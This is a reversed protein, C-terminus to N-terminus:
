GLNHGPTDKSLQELIEQWHDFLMLHGEDPFFTAQCGPIAKALYRGMFISVDKDAEGHWVYVPIRIDMLSFGWDRVLLAAEWAHGTTGHRFAERVSERCIELGRPFRKFVANDPNTPDHEDPTIITEPHEMGSHFFAWILLRWLPWPIHRGVKMGMTNTAIMNELVDPADAPSM